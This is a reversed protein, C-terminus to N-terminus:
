AGVSKLVCTTEIRGLQHRKNLEAWASDFDIAVPTGTEQLFSQQRKQRYDFHPKPNKKGHPTKVEMTQWCFGQHRNCWFRLLLDCPQRIPYVEIGADLLAKVLPKQSDDVKAAYRYQSM